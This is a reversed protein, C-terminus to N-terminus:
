RAAVEGFYVAEGAAGRLMPRAFREVNAVPAGLVLTGDPIPASSVVLAGARKLAAEDFWAANAPDGQELTEVRYPLDFAISGAAQFGHQLGLSVLFPVRGPHREAWYAEASRALAPGDMDAYNARKAFHPAIERFGVYGALAILALAAYATALRGVDFTRGRAAAVGWFAAFGLTFPTLWFYHPHVGALAAALVIGVPGFAAVTLFRAFPDARRIGWAMDRAARLAGAGSAAFALLAMAAQVAVCDAAFEGIWLAREPLSAPLTRAAFALTTAGKALADALHPAIVIAAIAAALWPGAGLARRRTAPDLAFLLALPAILHLLAYKAWLGLGVALGLLAWDLALGRSFAMWAAAMAATWFPMVGINHNVQLPVYTTFPSALGALMAVAGARGDATRRLFLALLAFAGVSLTLGIAYVVTYRLPGAQAALGTLWSSFPPHRLYSLQWHPGDIVGEAVDLRISGELWSAAAVWAAMHALCLAAWFRTAATAASAPPSLADADGSKVAENM